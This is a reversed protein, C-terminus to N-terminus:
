APILRQHQVGYASRIGRLHIAFFITRWILALELRFRKASYVVFKLDLIDSYTLGRYIGIDKKFNRLM